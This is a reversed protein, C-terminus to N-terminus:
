QTTVKYIHTNSEVFWDNDYNGEKLKEYAIEYAEDESTAEIELCYEITETASVNYKNMDGVKILKM